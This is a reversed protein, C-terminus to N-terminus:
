IRFFGLATCGDRRVVYAHLDVGFGNKTAIAMLLSDIPMRDLMHAFTQMDGDSPVTLSGPHRHWEGLYVLGRREADDIQRHLVETNPTFHVDSADYHTGPGTAELVTFRNGQENGFLGGGTELSGARITENRIAQLANGAMEVSATM